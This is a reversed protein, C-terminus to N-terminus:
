EYTYKGSQDEQGEYDDIYEASPNISKKAEIIAPEKTSFMM